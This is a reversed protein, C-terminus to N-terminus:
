ELINCRPNSLNARSSHFGAITPKTKTSSKVTGPLCACSHINVQTVVVLGLYVIRPGLIVSFIALGLWVEWEFPDVLITEKGIKTPKKYLFAYGQIDLPYTFSLVESRRHTEPFPTASFAAQGSAIMKTM